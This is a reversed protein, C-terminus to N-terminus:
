PSDLPTYTLADVCQICISWLHTQLDLHARLALHPVLRDERGPRAQARAGVQPRPGSWGMSACHPCTGLQSAFDLMSAVQVRTPLLASRSESVDLVDM